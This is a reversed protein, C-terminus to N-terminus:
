RGPRPRRSPVGARTLIDWLLSPRDLERTGWRSLGRVQRRLRDERDKEALVVQEPTRSRLLAPDIYKGLGDFEGIHDVGEFYFDSYAMRGNDLRFPRQLEPEAFGLLDILVRSQSERVSDAGGCAFAAVRRARAAGPGRLRAAIAALEASDALAGGPRRAWLVQDAVAVGHAFPLIRALDIATQAPTTVFHRGWPVADVRTLDRTHRRVVGSSRGGTTRAVSVDVVDPWAGLIQLDWYAAAAFHSLLIGAGLRATAEIVRVLHRALPDLEEWRRAEVYSGPAIRAVAGAALQARVLRDNLPDVLERRRIVDTPASPPRHM